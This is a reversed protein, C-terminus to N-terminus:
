STRRSAARPPNDRLAGARVGRSRLRRGFLTARLVRLTGQHFVLQCREERRVWISSRLSVRVGDAFAAHSTYTVLVVGEGLRKAHFDELSCEFPEEDALSEIISERDFVRGSRGIEVFDVALLTELESRSGRVARTLLREELVRIEDNILHLSPATM